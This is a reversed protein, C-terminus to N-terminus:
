VGAQGRAEAGATLSNSVSLGTIAKAHKPVHDASRSTKRESILRKVRVPACARHNQYPMGTAASGGGGLRRVRGPGPSASM